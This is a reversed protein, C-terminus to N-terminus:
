QHTLIYDVFKQEMQFRPFEGNRFRADPSNKWNSKIRGAIVANDVFFNEVPETIIERKISKLKASELYKEYTALPHIVKNTKTPELGMTKLENDDFVMHVFARNLSRYLHTGHRSCWPHCRAYVKGREALVEKMQKLAGAPDDTHDLIDYAIIIDYPGKEKVEDFSTTFVTNAWPWKHQVLDYGVSIRPKKDMATKAVHGEGCGFDLVALGEVSQDILIDLIAEARIEKDPESDEDCILIPNVALPWHDSKVLRSLLAFEQRELLGNLDKEFSNDKLLGSITM